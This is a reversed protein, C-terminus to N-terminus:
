VFCCGSLCLFTTEEMCGLSLDLDGAHQCDVVVSPCMMLVKAIVVRGMGTRGGVERCGREGWECTCRGTQISLLIGGGGVGWGLLFLFLFAM